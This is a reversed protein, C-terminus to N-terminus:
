HTNEIREIIIIIIISHTRVTSSKMCITWTIEMVELKGQVSEKTEVALRLSLPGDKCGVVIPM